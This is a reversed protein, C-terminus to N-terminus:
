RARAMRLEALLAEILEDTEEQESEWEAKLTEIDERLIRMEEVLRALRENLEGM